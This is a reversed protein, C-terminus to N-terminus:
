NDELYDAPNIGPRKCGSTSCTAAGLLDATGRKKSLPPTVIAMHPEVGLRRLIEVSRLYTHRDKSNLKLASSDGTLIVKIADDAVRKADKFDAGHRNASARNAMRFASSHRAM